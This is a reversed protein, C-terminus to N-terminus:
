RYIKFYYFLLILILLAIVPFSWYYMPFHPLPVSSMVSTLGDKVGNAVPNIMATTPAPSVKM